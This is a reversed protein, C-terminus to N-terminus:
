ATSSGRTPDPDPMAAAPGDITTAYGREPSRTMSTIRISPSIDAAHRVVLAM